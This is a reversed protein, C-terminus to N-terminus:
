YTMSDGYKRISESAENELLRQPWESLPFSERNDQRPRHRHFFDIGSKMARKFAKVSILLELVVLGFFYVLPFLSLLVMLIALTAPLQSGTSSQTFATLWLFVTFIFFQSSLLCLFCTDIINYINMKYPQFFSFIITASVFILVITYFQLYYMTFLRTSIFLLRLVFYFAAFYRHDRSNDTGDRYCGQFSDMFADLGPYDLKVKHLLWRFWKFPYLVLILPPAIVFLMLIVIALIGYPLHQSGFLEIAANHYWRSGLVQVGSTNYLVTPFLLSYSVLALKSYSLVIVGSFTHVLSQQLDIYKTLKLHLKKYPTLVFAVPKYNCDTLRVLIFTCLILFLPYFASVYRLAVAQLTGISEHFCARPLVSTFFDLVWFEYFVIVVKTLNGIAPYGIATLYDPLTRDIYTSGVIQCVLLFGNLKATTLSIRFFFIVLFFLTQLLLQTFVFWAWGSPHRSCEVCGLDASHISIGYGNERDCEGCLLGTRHLLACTANNIESVKPPLPVWTGEINPSIASYPCAGVLVMDTDNNYTMCYYLSLYSSKNRSNCQVINKLTDACYCQPSLDDQMSSSTPLFWPPCDAHHSDVSKLQTEASRSERVLLPSEQTGNSQLVALLLVFVAVVTAASSMSGVTQSEVKIWSAVYSRIPTM